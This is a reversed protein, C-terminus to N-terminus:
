RGHSHGFTVGEGEHVGRKTQPNREKLILFLLFAVTPVGSVEQCPQETAEKAGGVDTSLIEDLAFSSSICCCCSDPLLVEMHFWLLYQSIRQLTTKWLLCSSEETVCFLFLM